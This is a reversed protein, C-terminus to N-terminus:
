NIIINVECLTNVSAHTTNGRQRNFVCILDGRIMNYQPFHIAFSPLGSLKRENRENIIFEKKKRLEKKKNRSLQQM